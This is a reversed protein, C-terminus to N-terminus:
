FSDADTPAADDARAGGDDTKSYDAGVAGGVVAKYFEKAAAYMDKDTVLGQLEFQAGSWSGKENSLGVTTLKVINAFTPPSQLGKPTQVKKQQLSTMLKKSAKIQSSALSIIATEYSGTEPDILLVFHSRTDAFYDSKKVDVKGEDNPAFPRGDIIVVKSEDTRMAAFQEPTYEGKFGGTGGERSGWQIFSRKYACPVVLLGEKGNYLKGTVTNYLMGAKAGEVHAANDEDVIPSMKQLIQVFPIAFSDGDAGEMGAGFDDAMFALEEALAVETTGKVAVDKSSEKGAM